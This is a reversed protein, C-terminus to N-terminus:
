KLNHEFEVSEGDFIATLTEEESDIFHDTEFGVHMKGTTLQFVVCTGLRNEIEGLFLVEEGEKFPYQNKINPPLNAVFKCIKM